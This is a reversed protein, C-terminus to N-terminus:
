QKNTYQDPRIFRTELCCVVKSHDWQQKYTLRICPNLVTCVLSKIKFVCICVSRGFAYNCNIKPRKLDKLNVNVIYLKM